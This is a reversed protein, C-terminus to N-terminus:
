APAVRDNGRHPQSFCAVITWRSMLELSRQSRELDVVARDSHSGSFRESAPSGRNRDRDCARAQPSAPRATDPTRDAAPVPQLFLTLAGIGGSRAAHRFKGGSAHSRAAAATLFFRAETSVNLWDSISASRRSFDLQGRHAKSRDPKRLFSSGHVASRDFLM